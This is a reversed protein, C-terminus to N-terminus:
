PGSARDSSQKWRGHDRCCRSRGLPLRAHRLSYAELGADVVPLGRLSRGVDPTTRRGGPVSVKWVDYNGYRDGAYAIWRGDPSWSFSNIRAGNATLQTEGATRPQFCGSRPFDRRMRYTRSGDVTRHSIPVAVGGPFPRCRCANNSDVAPVRRRLGIAMLGSRGLSTAFLIASGDPFWQPTEGTNVVSGIDVLKELPLLRLHVSRRLRTTATWSLCACDHYRCGQCQMTCLAEQTTSGTNSRFVPLPASLSPGRQCGAGFAVGAGVVRNLGGALAVLYHSDRPTDRVGGTAYGRQVCEDEDFPAVDFIKDGPGRPGKLDLLRDFRRLDVWRHGEFLLSYRRNYLLEDFFADDTAPAAIADLGGSVTRVVTIDAM